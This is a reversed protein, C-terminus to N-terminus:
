WQCNLCWLLLRLACRTLPLAKRDTNCFASGFRFVRVYMPSFYFPLFDASCAGQLHISSFFVDMDEMPGSGTTRGLSFSLCSYVTNTESKLLFTYGHLFHTFNSFFVSFFASSQVDPVFCIWGCWNDDWENSANFRWFWCFSFGAMSNLPFLSLHLAPSRLLCRTIYMLCWCRLALFSCFSQQIM